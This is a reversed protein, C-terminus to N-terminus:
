RIEINSLALLTAAVCIADLASACPATLSAAHILRCCLARLPACRLLIADYFEPPAYCHLRILPSITTDPMAVHGEEFRADDAYVFCILAPLPTARRCCRLGHFYDPMMMADDAARFYYIIAATADIAYAAM